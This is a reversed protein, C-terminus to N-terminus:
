KLEINWELNYWLGNKSILKEYIPKTEADYIEAQGFGSAWFVRGM